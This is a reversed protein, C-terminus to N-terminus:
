RLQHFRDRYATCASRNTSVDADELNAIMSNSIAGTAILAVEIYAGSVTDIMGPPQSLPLPYPAETM